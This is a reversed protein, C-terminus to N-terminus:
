TSCKNTLFISVTIPGLTHKSRPLGEPRPRTGNAKPKNLGYSIRIKYAAYYDGEAVGDYFENIEARLRTM